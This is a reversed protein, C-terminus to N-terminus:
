LEASRSAQSVNESYASRLDNGIPSATTGKGCHADAESHALSSRDHGWAAVVRHGTNMRHDVRRRMTARLDVSKQVHISIEDTGTAQRPDLREMVNTSGHGSNELVLRARSEGIAIKWQPSLNVAM